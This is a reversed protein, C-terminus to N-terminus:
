RRDGLLRLLFLFLNVFDLYLRLAGIIAGKTAVANGQYMLVHEEKIRQMDFATLGTFVVVGIISIAFDIAPSGIFWNVMMALIIGFLGMTMFGGVGSLDRKTLYGYAATLGFMGAAIAFTTAISGLDYVLFISSFALGNMMSYALFLGVATSAQMKEIRASLVWVMVLPAIFVIWRIPTGLVAAFVEPVSATFLAVLATTGLGGVMWAYVRQVYLRMDDTSVHTATGHVDMSASFEDRQRSAYRQFDM